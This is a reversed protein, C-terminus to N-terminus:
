RGRLSTMWDGKFRDLEARFRTIDTGYAVVCGGAMDPVSSCGHVLRGGLATHAKISEARRNEDFFAGHYLEDVFAAERDDLDYVRQACVPFFWAPSVNAIHGDLEVRNLAMMTATERLMRLHKATVGMSKLGPKDLHSDRFLYAYVQEATALVQAPETTQIGHRRVYELAQQELSANVSETAPIFDREVDQWDCLLWSPSEYRFFYADTDIRISCGSVQMGPLLNWGPALPLNLETAIVHAVQAM